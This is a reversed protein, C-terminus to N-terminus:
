PICPIRYRLNQCGVRDGANQGYGIVGAGEGGPAFM